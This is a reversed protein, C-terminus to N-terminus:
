KGFVKTASTENGARFEAPQIAARYSRLIYCKLSRFSKYSQNEFNGPFEMKGM